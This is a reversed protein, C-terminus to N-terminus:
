VSSPFCFVQLFQLLDGVKSLRREQQASKVNGPTSRRVTPDAERGLHVFLNQQGNRLLTSFLVFVHLCLFFFFYALHHHMEVNDAVNPQIVVYRKKRFLSFTTGGIVVPRGPSFTDYVTLAVTADLPLDCVRIPFRVVDGFRRRLVTRRCSTKEASYFGFAAFLLVLCFKFTTISLDRGDGGASERQVSSVAPRSRVALSLPRGGAYLQASM